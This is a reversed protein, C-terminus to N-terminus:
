IPPTDGGNYDRPLPRDARTERWLTRDAYYRVTRKAQSLIGSEPGILWPAGPQGYSLVVALARDLEMLDDPAVPFEEPM